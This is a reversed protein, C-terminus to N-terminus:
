DDNVDYKPALYFVILSEQEGGLSYVVKLPEGNTFHVDIFEAVKYFMAINYIYNMGFAGLTTANGDETEGIAYETLDDIKIEVSMKGAEVTNAYLHIIEESCEIEFSDGGFKKLKDVINFFFASKMKIDVMYEAAPIELVDAEINLLPLEYQIVCKDLRLELSLKDSENYPDYEILISNDSLNLINFFLSTLIGVVTNVPVIWRDFWSAPLNLEFVSVKTNDM